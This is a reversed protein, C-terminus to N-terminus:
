LDVKGPQPRLFFGSEDMNYIRSPDDLINENGTQTLYQRVEEYWQRLGEETVNARAATLNQCKKESVMPHRKRFADYWKRGPRNDTFVTERKSNQLMTQVSDLLQDRSVPFGTEALHLIWKVLLDEEEALLITPPGMRHETPLKGSRKESLTSRPVGFKRASESISAGNLIEELASHVDTDTYKRKSAM